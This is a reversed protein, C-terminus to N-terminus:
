ESARWKQYITKGRVPGLVAQWQPLDWNALEQLSYGRFEQALKEGVGPFGCMVREPLTLPRLNPLLKKPAYFERHDPRKAEEYLASIMWPMAAEDHVLVPMVGRCWWSTVTQAFLRYPYSSTRGSRNKVGWVRSRGDGAPSPIRTLLVSVEYNEVLRSLQEDLEGNITSGVLNNWSKREIGLTLPTDFAAYDGSALEAVEFEDPYFSRLKAEINPNKLAERTDMTLVTVHLEGPPRKFPSGGARTHGRLPSVPPHPGDALVPGPLCRFLVEGAAERPQPVAGRRPLDCGLM